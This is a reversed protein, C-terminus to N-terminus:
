ENAIEKNGCSLRDKFDDPLKRQVLRVYKLNKPYGPMKTSENYSGSNYASTLVCWDDEGYRDQEYKLYLAAYKANVKPDMLEIPLGTFGMQRASNEKIQCIGYSASGHDHPAYNMTFDNSEHSCIGTLLIGSVKAVKAANLIISTIDM